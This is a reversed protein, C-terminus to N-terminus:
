NKLCKIVFLNVFLRRYLWLCSSVFVAVALHSITIGVNQIKFLVFAKYYYNISEWLTENNM